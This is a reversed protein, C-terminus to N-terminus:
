RRRRRSSRRRSTFKSQPKKYSMRKVKPRYVLPTMRVIHFQLFLKANDEIQFATDEPNVYFEYFIIGCMSPIPKIFSMEGQESNAGFYFTENVTGDFKFMNASHVATVGFVQDAPWGKQTYKPAKIIADNFPDRSEHGGSASLKPLQSEMLDQISFDQGGNSDGKLVVREQSTDGIGQSFLLSTRSNSNTYDYAVEFDDNRMYSGVKGSLMKQKKWQNFALNWGKRSARTTPVTKMQCTVSHGVDHDGNAGRLFASVKKIHFTQGQRVNRSLHQSALMALDIQGSYTPSETDNPTELLHTHTLLMYQRTHM